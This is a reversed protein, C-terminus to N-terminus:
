TCQGPVVPFVYGAIEVDAYGQSDIFELRESESVTYFNDQAKSSFLRYLPVSGCIQTPYIYISENQVAFGNKVANDRDTTSITYFHDSTSSSYLRYFPVTSVEPTSFVLAAVTQLVVGGNLIDADVNTTLTTYVHDTSSSAYIRYFPVTLTPDGCTETSRINAESSSNVASGMTAGLASLILALSFKM